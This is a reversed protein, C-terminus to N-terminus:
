LSKRVSYEADFMKLLPAVDLGLYEAYLRVFGRGYIPAIISHFDDSELERVINALMRTKAAVQEVSYGKALRANRLCEGLTNPHILKELEQLLKARQENIRWDVIDVDGFDFSFEDTLSDDNIRVIIIRKQIHKAYYLEKLIFSSRQSADSLFFLMASSTDIVKCIAKATFGGTVIGDIDMWCRIGTCRQIEDVISRAILTDSRSYSIFVQHSGNDVNELKGSRQGAPPSGTLHTAQEVDEDSETKVNSLKRNVQQGTAGKSADALPGAIRGFSGFAKNLYPILVKEFDWSGDNNLIQKRLMLRVFLSNEKQVKEPIPSVVFPFVPKKCIEDAYRVEDKVWDSTLAMPSVAFILCCCGRIASFIDDSYDQTGVQNLSDPAMWWKFGHQELFSKIRDALEKEESKYSIFVYGNNATM